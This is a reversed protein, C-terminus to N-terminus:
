KVQPVPQVSKSGSKEEPLLFGAVMPIAVMTLVLVGMLSIVNRRDICSKCLLGGSYYKKSRNSYGSQVGVKVVNSGSFM